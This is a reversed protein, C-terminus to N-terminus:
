GTMGIRNWLSGPNGIRMGFDAAVFTVQDVRFIRLADTAVFRM